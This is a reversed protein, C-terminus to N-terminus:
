WEGFGGAVDGGAVRARALYYRAVASKPELSLVRRFIAATRSDIEGRNKMVLIEGLPGWLDARRPALATAKRLAHIAGDGAALLRRGSEARAARREDQPSLGREALEDIEALQRRYVALAPDAGGALRTAGLARQVILAAAGAAILAAAIWLTIM